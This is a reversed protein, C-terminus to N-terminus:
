QRVYIFRYDFDLLFGDCGELHIQLRAALALLATLHKM